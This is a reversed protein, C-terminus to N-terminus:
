EDDEKKPTLSKTPSWAKVSVPKGTQSRMVRPKVVTDLADVKPSRRLAAETTYYKVMDAFPIEENVGKAMALAVPEHEIM